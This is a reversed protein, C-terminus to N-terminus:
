CELEPVPGSRERCAHEPVRVEKCPLEVTAVQHPNCPADLAKAVLKLELDPGDPLGLRTVGVRRLEQRDGVAIELLQVAEELVERALDV